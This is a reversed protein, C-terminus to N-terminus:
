ERIFIVFDHKLTELFNIFDKIESYYSNSYLYILTENKNYYDFFKEIEKFSYDKYNFIFINPIPLQIGDIVCSLNENNKWMEFLYSKGTKGYVKYVM